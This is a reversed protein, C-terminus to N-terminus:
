LAVERKVTLRFYAAKVKLFPELKKPTLKFYNAAAQWDITPKPEVKHINVGDVVIEKGDALELLIAKAQEREAELKEISATTQKYKMAAQLLKVQKDISQSPQTPWLEEILEPISPMTNM